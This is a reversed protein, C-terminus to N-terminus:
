VGDNDEDEDIKHQNSGSVSTSDQTFLDRWGGFAGDESKQLAADLVANNQAADFAGNGFINVAEYYVTALTSCVVGGEDKMNSLFRKDADVKNMGLTSYDTDHQFCAYSFDCGLPHDPVWETGESGCWDKDKDFGATELLGYNIQPRSYTLEQNSQTGGLTVVASLKQEVTSEAQIQTDISGLLENGILWSNKLSAFNASSKSSIDPM